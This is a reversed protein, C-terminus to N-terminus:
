NVTIEIAWKEEMHAEIAKSLLKCCNLQKQALAIKHSVIKSSTYKERRPANLTQSYFANKM